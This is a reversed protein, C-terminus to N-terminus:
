ARGSGVGRVLEAGVPRAHQRHEGSDTPASRAVGLYLRVGEALGFAAARLTRMM